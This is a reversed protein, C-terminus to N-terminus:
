QRCHTFFAVGLRVCAPAPLVTIASLRKFHQRVGTRLFSSVPDAKLLRAIEGITRAMAKKATFACTVTTTKKM